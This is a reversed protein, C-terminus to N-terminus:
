GSLHTALFDRTREWALEAAENNYTDGAEFFWHKTGPYLHFDTENEGLRIFAETVVRDEESVMHDDEAYHGMFTATAEDFDISQGSYFVVVAAVDHPLRASLWLAMSGGMSLGIVAIPANADASAARLTHASSMVLGSLDDPSVSALTQEAEDADAPNEGDLLDPVLVTYGEGALRRAFDRTWDNLGWWSHM